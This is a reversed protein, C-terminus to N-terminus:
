QAGPAEGILMLDPQHVPGEGYVLSGPINAQTFAEKLANRFEEITNM